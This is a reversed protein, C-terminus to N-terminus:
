ASKRAYYRSSALRQCERCQQRGFPDVVGYEAIKHGASCETRGELREVAIEGNLPFNLVAADGYLEKAAEDYAQAADKPCTFNGLRRRTGRDRNGIEARWKQKSRDFYVGRYGVSSRTFKDPKGISSM